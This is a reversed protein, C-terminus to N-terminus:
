HQNDHSLAKRLKKLARSKADSVLNLKLHLRRAIQHISLNKYYLLIIVERERNSLCSMDITPETMDDLIDDFAKSAQKDEVHELISVEGEGDNCFRDLEEVSLTNLIEIVNHEKINTIDSIAETTVPQNLRELLEKAKNIKKLKEVATQSLKIMRNRKLYDCIQRFIGNRVYTTFSANHTHDYSNFSELVAIMGEQFLDEINDSERYVSAINIVQGCQNLILKDKIQKKRRLSPTTYYEEFLAKEEKKSLFKTNPVINSLKM